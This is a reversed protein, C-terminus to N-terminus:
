DEGTAAFDYLIKQRRIAEDNKGDPKISENWHSLAHKRSNEPVVLVSCEPCAVTDRASKTKETM